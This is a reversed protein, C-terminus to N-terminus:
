SEMLEGAFLRLSETPGSMNKKMKKGTRKHCLQGTNPTRCGKRLRRWRRTKTTRAKIRMRRITGQCFHEMDMTRRKTRSKKRKAQTVKVRMTM